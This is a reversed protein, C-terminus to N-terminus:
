FRKRLFFNKKLANCVCSILETTEDLAFHFTVSFCNSTQHSCAPLHSFSGIFSCENIYCLVCVCLPQTFQRWFFLCQTCLLSRENNTFVVSNARQVSRLSFYVCVCDFRTLAAAINQNTSTKEWPKQQEKRM